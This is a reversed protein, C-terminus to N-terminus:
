EKPPEAPSVVGDGAKGGGKGAAKKVLPETAAPGDREPGDREPWGQEPWGQEPQSLYGPPDMDDVILMADGKLAAIQADTLDAIRHFVPQDPHSLGARRFGHRKSVVRIHDAM